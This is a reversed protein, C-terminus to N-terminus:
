FFLHWYHNWALSSAQRWTGLYQYKLYCLSLHKVTLMQLLWTMFILTSFYCRQKNYCIGLYVRCFRCTLIGKLVWPQLILVQVTSSVLVVTGNCIRNSAQVRQVCQTLIDDKPNFFLGRPVLSDQSVSDSLFMLVPCHRWAGAPRFQASSAVGTCALCNVTLWRNTLM